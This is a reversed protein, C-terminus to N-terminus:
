DDSKMMLKIEILKERILVIVISMFFGVISSLIVIKTRKPYFRLYPIRPEDLVQYINDSLIYSRKLKDSILKMIEKKLNIDNVDKLLNEFFVIDVIIRKRNEELIVKKLDILIENLLNYAFKKDNLKISIRVINTETDNNFLIVEEKLLKFFLEIRQYEREVDNLDFDRPNKLIKGNESYKDYYKRLFSESYLHAKISQVVPSDQNTGISLRSLMNTSRFSVEDNTEAPIITTSVIYTKEALLTYTIAIIGVIFNFVIIFKLSKKFIKIMKIIFIDLNANELM